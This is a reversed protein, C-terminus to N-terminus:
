RLSKRVKEYLDRSLQPSDLLRLFQHRILDQRSEDLQGFALMPTILRSAVQPNIPDTQLLYDTLFKYGSGDIAHFGRPNYFAFTGVVSRVRNPNNISYMAHAMLIQLKSLCDNREKGAHLAFWKDMVLSDHRWKAEFDEMLRDFLALESGQCAKLVALTDTMNDSQLYLQHLHSEVGPANSLALYALCVGRLRRQAAQQQTYQYAGTSIRDATAQWQDTLTRALKRKLCDRADLLGDVRIPSNQQALTEFSPLELMEAFLAPDQDVRRLMSDFLEILVDPVSTQGSGAMEHLYQSILSQAADWRLFPDQAHLIIQQKQADSQIQKVRVPASFGALIATVPENDFPGFDFQQKEQTVSLTHKQVSNNAGDLIEVAVPMHLPHKEHQDATAATLQTLSLSFRGTQPEFTTGVTLQPTGSQSYWRRFASLDVDNADQMAQVFDDCTVAQGDHRKFYLDMGQRFGAEGLLTHLMRIVEAGKDYVTVSYFNNMEMVEEPRIPHSMPGADEAFQHERMVRVQKLRVIAPSGMDASFQQDRFVTLGEKLSLQFWDRCTVRNGTWNHFYEHAIVSEINFYDDDTASAPDALVYKSNFLNLGKNEMAGMNFFDVAVIMYVDLDYELGYKQEDWAMAKKLSDLAHQGRYANGKDVYLQLTVDRGSRTTFSDSLLDFDGAVLAFLYSPKAFPDEWLAWHRGGDLDGQDLLNGNSLLYPYAQKDAVIRVRYRTMVDPRDPFYTIKRFGEAECQTCFAGASKYLGELSSNNAPDIITEIKLEFSAPLDQLIIGGEAMEPQYPQGAVWVGGLELAEGNLYLPADQSTQRQVQSIATVRTRHDDLEFELYLESIQYAPPQYDALKMATDRRVSM